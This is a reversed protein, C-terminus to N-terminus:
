LDLLTSNAIRSGVLNSGSLLLDTLVADFHGHKGVSLTDKPRFSQLARASTTLTPL